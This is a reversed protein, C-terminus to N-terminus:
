LLASSGAGSEPVPVSFPILEFRVPVTRPVWCRNYYAMHLAVAARLNELTKSFGLALRTFRRQM